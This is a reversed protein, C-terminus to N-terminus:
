AFKNIKVISDVSRDILCAIDEVEESIRAVKSLMDSLADVLRMHEANVVSMIREKEKLESVWVVDSM